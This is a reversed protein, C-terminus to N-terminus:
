EKKFVFEEDDPVNIRAREISPAIKVWEQIIKGCREVIHDQIDWTDFDHEYRDCNDDVRKWYKEFKKKKLCSEVLYSIKDFDIDAIEQVYWKLVMIVVPEIDVRDLRKVRKRNKKLERAAKAATKELARRDLEAQLEKASLKSLNTNKSM